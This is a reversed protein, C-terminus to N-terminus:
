LKFFSDLTKQKLNTCRKKATMDRWRRLLMTDSPTAEPQQEVYLLATELAALGETHTVVTVTEACSDEDDSVEAGNCIMEVIAEETIENQEDNQLWEAVESVETNECGPLKKVLEALPLDDDSDNEQSTSPEKKLIKNWSRNITDAKVEHWSEAVWYVVDKMTTKKLFDNITVEGETAQLMSQLLRRRYKKKMAELVGQDMPQILSTVNPPFFLARIGDCTLEEEGPHCGANDLTLIAKLPLNQKKLYKKTEPVFEELFWKKFITKDMWASKQNTYSVPLASKTINKLARPKASKGIVMLQLKHNGSANAAALVTVREKSKKLGPAAKEEKSALTKSPLMKFNLGTEDCNYIQDLTLNEIKVIQQFKECFGGVVESDASLKEGCIELQRIGYRKKWRDLWGTSATFDKEGEDLKNRFFLAKEQLIPGSIPSGKQRQQSFWLFLAESTKEYESKKMSKRDSTTLDVCKVSSFQEIKNRNRRWDGVTTEGVGYDAAIKKLSEGQDIRKLATLKEKISVFKRKAKGSMKVVDCVCVVDFVRVCLYLGCQPLCLM